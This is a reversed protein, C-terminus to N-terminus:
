RTLEREQEYLHTLLEAVRQCWRPDDENLAIESYFDEITHGRLKYPTTRSENDVVTHKLEHRVLRVKDEREINEWLMQDLFIIYDYGEEEGSDDMTLHRILDDSKKIRALTLKGGSMRKKTDFLCMIKANVLEPFHEDRVEALIDDVDTTCDEYRM